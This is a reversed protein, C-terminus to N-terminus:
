GSEPIESLTEFGSVEKDEFFIALRSFRLELQTIM